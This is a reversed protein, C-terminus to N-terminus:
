SNGWASMTGSPRAHLHDSVVKSTLGIGLPSEMGRRGSHVRVLSLELSIRTPHRVNDSAEGPRSSIAVSDVCYKIRPQRVEWDM